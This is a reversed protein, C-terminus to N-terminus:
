GIDTSVFAKEMPYPQPVSISATPFAMPTPIPHSFNSKRFSSGIATTNPSSFSVSTTPPHPQNHYNFKFNTTNTTSKTSVHSSTTCAIKFCSENPPSINQEGFANTNPDKVVVRVEDVATMTSFHFTIDPKYGEAVNWGVYGADLDLKDGDTLQGSGGSLWEYDMTVTVSSYSDDWLSVGGDEM